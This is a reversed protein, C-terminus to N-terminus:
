KRGAAIRPAAARGIARQMKQPKVRSYKSLLALV